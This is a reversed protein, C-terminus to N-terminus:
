HGQTQCHGSHVCSVAPEIVCPGGSAAGDPVAFRAHSPHDPPAPAAPTAAGPAPPPPAARSALHRRIAGDVAERIEARNM